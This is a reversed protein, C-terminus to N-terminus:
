DLLGRDYAIAVAEARRSAGLKAMVRSLHVSVTKESIYLEEGVQRNTQGKAVLRLVSAERPTFLDVTDRVVVGALGIRGRRALQTVAEAFPKAGLRQAVAHAAGLEREADERRDVGLLAEAYHWRAIAQEYVVGYDFAAVVAAWLEPSNNGHLRASEAEARALWARGEPGLVGTRPVGLHATQRAHEVFRDGEAVAAAVAASDGKVQAKHAMDACAAAGLAGLKIGATLWPGGVKAAWELTETVREVAQEPKGRWRAVQAGVTGCNLPIQLELPWHPRLNAILREADAFRGRAVMVHLGTAELRGSVINSVRGCPQEAAEQAVDWDGTAYHTLVKLVRLELGFDSWSLGASTARQVGEDFTAVAEDLLGEEFLNLGLYFRARLEVTIADARTALDRAEVLLERAKNVDGMSEYTIGLTALADAQVGLAGVVRGDEVAVEARAMAVDLQGDSRLIRAQVALVWARTASAPLDAVEAWAAEIVVRAEDYGGDITLLTQALRRCTEARIEPDDQGKAVKVASRAYAIAREPDGSTGAAWSAKRLLTLEDTDTPRAHSDVSDWLRLAQELHRLAEGPAGLRTAERSAVVSAMLATPLANSEMSHYALAAANGREELHALKHRAYAAHMRVREGPLLDGYVAERLLAHRFSYQDQGGSAVLVHHQVAERLGDELQIDDLDGVDRLTQHKVTRGAVSALRILQQTVESLREVRSLLVDVLSAPIGRGSDSLAALLEEAFFANGESQEAVRVITDDDAGGESLATVFARTDSKDFPPLELREVAPLRVLEALLPRLPHRRHLDDTRYTGLVLLRQSRLRSLLFYLLGRTAGDAWHLDELVLVVLQDAALESLLVYVADFLQLQGVDQERRVQLGPAKGISTALRQPEGVPSGPLALDPLLMSLGPKALVEDHGKGRVQGLAEAFPLYPLGAEGVDVCRGSLVIAGGTTAIRGTEEVMRTKGVGADGAVLLAGASGGAARDVAARLRVLERGRAVLPIGSGLRPVDPM